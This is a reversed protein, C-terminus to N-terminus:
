RLDFTVKAPYSGPDPLSWSRVADVICDVHDLAEANPTSAGATIVRGGPAVYATVQLSVGGAGCAQLAEGGRSAVVSGVRDAEWNVPPRVDDSVPYEIPWTFEAEGGHPQHFRASQAVGLLCRETERDGVSSARPYVRRVRGDTAIRFFFEVRGSVIENATAARVFCSEFRGLRPELGLQIEERSLTGLLGEIQVGDNASHNRDRGDDPHVTTVDSTAEPGGGCGALGLALFLAAVSYSRLLKNVGM